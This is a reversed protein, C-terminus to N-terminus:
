RESAIQSGQVPVSCSKGEQCAATISNANPLPTMAKANETSNKLEAGLLVIGIMQFHCM